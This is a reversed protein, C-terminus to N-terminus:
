LFGFFFFSLLTIERKGSGMYYGKFCDQHRGHLTIGLGRIEGEALGAFRILMRHHPGSSRDSGSIRNGHLKQIFTRSIDDM